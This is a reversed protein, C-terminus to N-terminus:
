EVTINMAVMLCMAGKVTQAELHELRAHMYLQLVNKIHAMMLFTILELM